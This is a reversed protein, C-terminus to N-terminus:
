VLEDKLSIGQSLPVYREGLDGFLIGDILVLYSDTSTVEGYWM